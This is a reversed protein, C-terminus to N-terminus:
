ALIVGAFAAVGALTEVTPLETFFCVYPEGEGMFFSLFNADGEFAERCCCCGRIYFDAEFYPYEYLKM